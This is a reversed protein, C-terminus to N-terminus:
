ETQDRLQKESQEWAERITGAPKIEIDRAKRSGSEVQRKIGVKKHPETNITTKTKNELPINLDMKAMKLLKPLNNYVGPGMESAIQDMQTVVKKEVKNESFFSKVGKTFTTQKDTNYGQKISGIDDRLQSVLGAIEEFAPRYYDKEEFQFKIAQEEKKQGTKVEEPKVVQSQSSVASSLNNLRDVLTDVMDAKQQLEPAGKTKDKYATQMKEFTDKFATRQDEPIKDFDFFYEETDKKKDGEGEGEGEGSIGGLSGDDEIVTFSTGDDSVGTELHKIGEAM